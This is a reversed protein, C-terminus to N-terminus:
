RIRLYHRSLRFPPDSPETRAPREQPQPRPHMEVENPSGELTMVISGISLHLSQQQEVVAPDVRGPEPHQIDATQDPLTPLLPLPSEAIEHANEEPTEEGIWALINRVVQGAPSAEPQDALSGPSQREVPRHAKEAAPLVLSPSAHEVTGQLEAAQSREQGGADDSAKLEAAGAAAQAELGGESPALSGLPRSSKPGSPEPTRTPEAQEREANGPRLPQVEFAAATQIPTDPPMPDQSAPGAQEPVPRPAPDVLVRQEFELPVIPQRGRDASHADVPSAPGFTLDTQRMLGKFYRGM